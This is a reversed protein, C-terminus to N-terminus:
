DPLTIKQGPTIMDPNLGPNAGVVKAKTANDAKGYHSRMIKWLTDSLNEWSEALWPIVKTSTGELKVLTDLIEGGVRWSEGDTVSALDLNVSDGGRGMIFTGGGGGAGKPKCAVALVSTVIVVALLISFWKRKSM